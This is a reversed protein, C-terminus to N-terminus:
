GEQRLAAANNHGVPTYIRYFESETYTTTEGDKVVIYEVSKITGGTVTGDELVETERTVIRTAYAFENLTGKVKVLSGETTPTPTEEEVVVEPETVEDVAVEVEPATEDASKTVADTAKKVASRLKKEAKSVAM